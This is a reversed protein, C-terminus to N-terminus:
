GLAKNVVRGLERAGQQFRAEVRQGATTRIRDMFPNAKQGRVSWVKRGGPLVLRRPPMRNSRIRRRPSVDVGTTRELGTGRNVWRVVQAITVKGDRKGRPAGVSLAAGTATRSMRPQLAAATRGSHRPTERSVIPAIESKAAKVTERAHADIAALLVREAPLKKGTVTM